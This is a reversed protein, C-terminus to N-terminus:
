LVQLKEALLIFQNHLREQKGVSNKLVIINLFSQENTHINLMELGKM